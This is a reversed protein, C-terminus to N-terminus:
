FRYFKIKQIGSVTNCTSSKWGQECEFCNGTKIHCTNNRCNVPCEKQCSDGYVGSTQCGVHM